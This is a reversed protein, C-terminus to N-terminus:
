ELGIEVDDDVGDDDEEETNENEQQDTAVTDYEIVAKYPFFSILVLEWHHESLNLGCICFLATIMCCFLHLLAMFWGVFLIWIINCCCNLQCCSDGNTENTDQRQIRSDIPCFCFKTINWCKATLGTYYGIISIFSIATLFLWGAAVFIGGCIWWIILSLENGEFGDCLCCICIETLCGFSLCSRLLSNEKTPNCDGCFDDDSQENAM